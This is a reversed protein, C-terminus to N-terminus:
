YRSSGRSLVASRVAQGGTWLGALMVTARVVGPTEVGVVGGAGAGCIVVSDRPVCVISPTRATPVRVVLVEQTSPIGDVVVEACHTEDSNFIL